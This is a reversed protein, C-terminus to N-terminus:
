DLFPENAAEARAQEEGIGRLLAFASLLCFGIAGLVAAISFVLITIM